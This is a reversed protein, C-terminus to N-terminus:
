RCSESAAAGFSKYRKWFQEKAFSDSQRTEQALHPDQFFRAALRQDKSTLKTNAVSQICKCLSRNASKRDSNMCAREIKGFSTAPTALFALLLAAILHKM